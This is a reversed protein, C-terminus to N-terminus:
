IARPKEAVINLPRCADRQIRAQYCLDNAEPSAYFWSLLALAVHPATLAAPIREAGSLEPMAEVMQQRVLPQMAPFAVSHRRVSESELARLQERWKPWPDPPLSEIRGTGYGHNVEAGARYSSIWREFREATRAIDANTLEAPLLTRALAALTARDDPQIFLDGIAVAGAPIAAMAAVFSRRKM